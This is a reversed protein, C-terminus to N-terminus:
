FNSWGLPEGLRAPQRSSFFIRAPKFFFRRRDGRRRPAAARDGVVQKRAHDADPPHLAGRHADVATAPRAVLGLARASTKRDEPATRFRRGGGGRHGVLEEQRPPPRGRAGGPRGGQAVRTASPRISRLGPSNKRLTDVDNQRTQPPHSAAPHWHACDILYNQRAKGECTTSLQSVVKIRIM